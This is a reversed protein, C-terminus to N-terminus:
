DSIHSASQSCDASQHGGRVKEEQHPSQAQLDGPGGEDSGPAARGQEEEAQGAARVEFLCHDMELKTFWDLTVYGTNFNFLSLLSRLLEEPLFM